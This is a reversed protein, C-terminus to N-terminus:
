DIRPIYAGTGRSSAYLVLATRLAAQEADPALREGAAIRDLWTSLAEVSVASVGGHESCAMPGTEISACERRARQEALCLRCHPETRADPRVSRAQLGLRLWRALGRPATMGVILPLHDPCVGEQLGGADTQRAGFAQAERIIARALFLCRGCLSPPRAVSSANLTVPSEPNRHSIERDQPM